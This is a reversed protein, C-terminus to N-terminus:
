PKFIFGLTGYLADLEKYSRIHMIKDKPIDWILDLYKQRNKPYQFLTFRILGWSIKQPGGQLQGLRHGKPKTLHNWVYRTMTSLPLPDIWIIKTAREFRKPMLFSYNGDIVWSDETIVRTHDAALDDNPRRVWATNPIHAYQDLHYVPINWTRSMIDALTSKGSNSPGIIAIRSGFPLDLM